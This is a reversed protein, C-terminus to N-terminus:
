TNIINFKKYFFAVISIFIFLCFFIISCNTDNAEKNEAIMKQHLKKNEEFLMQYHKEKEEDNTIKLYNIKNQLIRNHPIVEDLENQLELAKAQVKTYSGRLSRNSDELQGIKKHNKETKSVELLLLKSHKENEKFFKQFQEEKEKWFKYHYLMKECENDYKKEADAFKKEQRKIENDNKRKIDAFKQEQKKIEEDNTTKLYNIKEQLTRNHLIVKDLANQLELAKAQVETYSGRLSINSDELQEIKNHVKEHKSVEQRSLKIKCGYHQYKCPLLTYKCTKIHEDVKKKQICKHCKKNPCKIPLHECHPQHDKLNGLEGVWDCGYTCKVKSSLILRDIFPVSVIHKSNVPKRDVPCFFVTGRETLTKLHKQLCGECFVHGCDLQKVNRMLKLCIPCYFDQQVKAITDIDYGDLHELQKCSESQNLSQSLFAM